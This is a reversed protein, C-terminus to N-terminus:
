CSPGAFYTHLASSYLASCSILTHRLAPAYLTHPLLFTYPHTGSHVTFHITGEEQCVLTSDDGLLIHSPACPCLQTFWERHPCMHASAGSDILIHSAVASAPDPLVATTACAVLLHYSLTYRGHIAGPPHQAASFATPPPVPSDEQVPPLPLAPGNSDVAHVM